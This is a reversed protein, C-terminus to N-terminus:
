ESIVSTADSTIYYLYRQLLRTQQGAVIAVFEPRNLFDRWLRAEEYSLKMEQTINPLAPEGEFVVLHVQQVDDYHYLCLLM